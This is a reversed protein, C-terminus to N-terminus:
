YYEEDYEEEENYSGSYSSFAKIAEQYLEESTQQSKIAEVKARALEVEAAIREQELRARATGLKLFHTIVQSSATGAQLQQEAQNIAMNILQAERAEPTMAPARTRQQKAM